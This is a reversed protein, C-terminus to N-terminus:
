GAFATLRVYESNGGAVDVRAEPRMAQPGGYRTLTVTYRGPPLDCAFRGRADATVRRVLAGGATTIGTILVRAHGFARFERYPPGVPPGGKIQVLGEITHPAADHAPIAWGPSAILAAAAAVVVVCAASGSTIGM